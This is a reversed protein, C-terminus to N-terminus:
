VNPGSKSTSADNQTAPAPSKAEQWFHAFRSPKTAYGFRHCAHPMQLPDAFISKAHCACYLLCTWWLHKRLTANQLMLDEPKSLHNQTVPAASQIVQSWKKPATCRPVKFLHFPFITLRMPVLGDARGEVKWKQLFERLITENKINDLEFFSSTECFLKSKSMTLNLCQPLRASNSRKQHQWTWFNLFDRLIAKNEFKYISLYVFLYISPYISLYVSLCILYISLCSCSCSCSCSFWVVAVMVVVFVFM